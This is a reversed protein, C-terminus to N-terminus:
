NQFREDKQCDHHAAKMTMKKWNAFVNCGHDMPGHQGCIWSGTETATSFNMSNQFCRSGSINTPKVPWRPGPYRLSIPLVCQNLSGVPRTVSCTSGIITSQPATKMKLTLINRKTMTQLGDEELRRRLWDMQIETMGHSLSMLNRGLGFVYQHITKRKFFRHCPKSPTVHRQVGQLLLLRRWSSFCPMSTKGVVLNM